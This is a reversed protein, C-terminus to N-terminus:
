AVLLLKRGRHLGIKNLLIWAFLLLLAIFDVLNNGRALSSKANSSTSGKVAQLPLVDFSLGVGFGARM